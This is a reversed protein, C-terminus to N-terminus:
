RGESCQPELTAMQGVVSLPRNKPQDALSRKVWLVNSGLSVLM